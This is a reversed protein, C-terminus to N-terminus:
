RMQLWIDKILNPIILNVRNKTIKIPAMKKRKWCIEKPMILRKLPVLIM